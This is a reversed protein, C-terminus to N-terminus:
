KSNSEHFVILQIQAIFHREKELGISAKRKIFTAESIGSAVFYKKDRERLCPFISGTNRKEPTHSHKHLLQM